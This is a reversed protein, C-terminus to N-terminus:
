YYDLGRKQDKRGCKVAAVEWTGVAGEADKNQMKFKSNTM